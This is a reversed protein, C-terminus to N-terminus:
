DKKRNALIPVNGVQPLVLTDVEDEIISAAQSYPESKILVSFISQDHRNDKFNSNKKAEGNYNDSFLAPNDLAVNLWKNILALSEATKRFILM